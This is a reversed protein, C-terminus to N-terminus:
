SRMVNVEKIKKKKKKPQVCPIHVNGLWSEFGCGLLSRLWQLSWAPDKVWQVVPSSRIEKIKIKSSGHM